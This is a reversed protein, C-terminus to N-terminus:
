GPIIKTSTLKRSIKSCSTSSLIACRSDESRLRAFFVTTNIRSSKVKFDAATSTSKKRIVSTRLERKRSQKRSSPRSQRPSTRSATTTRASTTFRSASLEVSGMNDIEEQDILSVRLHAQGTKLDKVLKLKGQGYQYAQWM